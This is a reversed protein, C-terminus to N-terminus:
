GRPRSAAAATRPRERRSPPRRADIAAQLAGIDDLIGGLRGGLPTLAYEVRPPPGTWSRKMILGFRVMKALRENMVKTSLGPLSRRIAGPRRTGARIRVLVALSWKCGLIDEVLRTAAPVAGGAGGTERRGGEAGM